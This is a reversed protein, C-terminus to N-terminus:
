QLPRRSDFGRSKSPLCALIENKAWKEYRSPAQVPFHVPTLHRLHRTQRVFNGSPLAEGEVLSAQYFPPVQGIAVEQGGAIAASVSTSFSCRGVTRRAGRRRFTRPLSPSHRASWRRTRCGFPLWRRRERCSRRVPGRRALGVRRLRIARCTACPM